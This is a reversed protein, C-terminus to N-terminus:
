YGLATMSEGAWAQAAVPCVAKPRYGTRRTREFVSSHWLPATQLCPRDQKLVHCRRPALTLSAVPALRRQYHIRGTVNPTIALIPAKIYPLKFKLQEIPWYVSRGLAQELWRMMISLAQDALGDYRFGGGVDSHAGQLWVETVRADHNMLTPRFALRQEDLAVLHLAARVCKPLKAGHEFVVETTPWRQRDLNPWGISAVTEMVAEIVIPKAVKAEILAAFRRALAAGRSFGILVVETVGAHYSRDFDHLARTLIAAVHGPEFAFGANLCRELWHGYTGVGAYYFSHGGNPLPHDASVRGGLLLHSKLVNTISIDDYEFKQADEPANDTGDFHFFLRTM